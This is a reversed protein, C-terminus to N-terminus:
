AEAKLGNLKRHQTQHSSPGGTHPLGDRPEAEPSACPVQGDQGPWSVVRGKQGPVSAVDM